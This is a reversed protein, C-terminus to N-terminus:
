LRMDQFRGNANANTATHTSAAHPPPPRFRPAAGVDLADDVFPLVDLVVLPDLPDLVDPACAVVLVGGPEVPVVAEPPAPEVPGDDEAAAQSV